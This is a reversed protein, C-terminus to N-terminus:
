DFYVADYAGELRKYTDKGYDQTDNRIQEWLLNYNDNAYNESEWSWGTAQLLERIPTDAFPGGWIGMTETDNNDTFTWYFDAINMTKEHSYFGDAWVKLSNDFVGGNFLWYMVELTVDELGDVGGNKLKWEIYDSVRVRGTWSGGDGQKYFGTYYFQDIDFGREPAQAKADAIIDDATVEWTSDKIATDEAEELTQM